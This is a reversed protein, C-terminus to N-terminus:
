FPFYLMEKPFASLLLSMALLNYPDLNLQFNMASDKLLFTLSFAGYRLSNNLDIRNIQSFFENKIRSISSIILVKKYAQALAALYENFNKYSFKM